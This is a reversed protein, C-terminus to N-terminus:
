QKVDPKQMYNDLIKSNIDIFRNSKDKVSNQNIYLSLNNLEDKIDLSDKQQPSHHNISRLKIVNFDKSNDQPSCILSKNM